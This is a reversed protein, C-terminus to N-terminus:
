QKAGQLIEYKEVLEDFKLTLEDLDTEKVLTVSKSLADTYVKVWKNREQGVIAADDLHERAM